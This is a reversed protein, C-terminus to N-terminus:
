NSFIACLEGDVYQIKVGIRFWGRFVTKFLDFDVRSLDELVIRDIVVECVRWSGNNVWNGFIDEIYAYLLMQDEKGMSDYPLIRLCVRSVDFVVAKILVKPFEIVKKGTCKGRSVAQVLTWYVNCGSPTTGAILLVTDFYFESHLMTSLREDSTRHTKVKLVRIIEILRVSEYFTEVNQDTEFGDGPVLLTHLSKLSRILDIFADLSGEPTFSGLNLSKLRRSEVPFEIGLPIGDYYTFTLNKPLPNGEALLLQFVDMRVEYLHASELSVNSRFADVVLSDAHAYHIKLFILNKKNAVRALSKHFQENSTLNYDSPTEFIFITLSLILSSANLIPIMKVAHVLRSMGKPDKKMKFTQLTHIKSLATAFHEVSEVAIPSRDRVNNFELTLSTLPLSHLISGLERLTECECTVNDLQLTQLRPCIESIKRLANFSEHEDPLISILDAHLSTLNRAPFLNSLDREVKLEYVKIHQYNRITTISINAPSPSIGSLM